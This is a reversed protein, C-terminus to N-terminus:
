NNELEPNEQIKHYTKNMYKTVVMKVGGSKICVTDGIKFKREM